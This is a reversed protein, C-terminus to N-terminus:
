EPHGDDDDTVPPAPMAEERCVPCSRHAELWGDACKRHFAHGCRLERMYVGKRVASQCVTCLEGREAVKSRRVTTHARLEAESCGRSSANVDGRREAALIMAVALRRVDNVSDHDEDEADLERATQLMGPMVGEILDDLANFLLEEFAADIVPPAEEADGDATADAPAEPATQPTDPPVTTEARRPTPSPIADFAPVAVSTPSAPISPPPTVAERDRKARRLPM